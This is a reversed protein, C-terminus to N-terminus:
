IACHYSKFLWWTHSLIQMCFPAQLTPVQPGAKWAAQDPRSLAANELLKAVEADWDADEEEEDDNAFVGTSKGAFVGTNKAASPAPCNSGAGPQQAHSPAKSSPLAAGSVCTQAGSPAPATLMASNHRTLGPPGSSQQEQRAHQQAHMRRLPQTSVGEQPPKPGYYQHQPAQSARQMSPGSASSQPGCLQQQAQRSDLPQMMPRPAFSEDQGPRNPARGSSQATASHQVEHRQSQVQYPGRQVAGSYALESNARHPALVRGSSQAQAPQSAPQPRQRAHSNHPPPGRRSGQQSSSGPPRRHEPGSAQLGRAAHQAPCRQEITGHPASSGLQHSGPLIHGADNPRVGVSAPPQQQGPPQRPVKSQLSLPHGAESISQNTGRRLASDSQQSSLRPPDQSSCGARQHVQVRQEDLPELPMRQSASRQAHEARSRAGQAPAHDPRAPQRQPALNAECHARPPLDQALADSPRSSQRSLAQKSQPLEQSAKEIEQSVREFSSSADKRLVAQGKIENETNDEKAEKM